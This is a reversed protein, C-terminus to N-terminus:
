LDHISQLYVRYKVKDKQGQYWFLLSLLLLLLLVVGNTYACHIM